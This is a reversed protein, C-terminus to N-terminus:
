SEDLNLPDEIARSCLIRPQYRVHSSCVGISEECGEAGLNSREASSLASWRVLYCDKLRSFEKGCMDQHVSQYDAVICKGYAAAQRSTLLRKTRMKILIAYRSRASELLKQLSRL